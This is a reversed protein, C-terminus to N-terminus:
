RPLGLDSPIVKTSLNEDDAATSWAGLSLVVHNALEATWAKSRAEVNVVDRSSAQVIQHRHIVANRECACGRKLILTLM